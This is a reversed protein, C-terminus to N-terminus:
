KAGRAVHENGITYPIAAALLYFPLREFTRAGAAHRRAPCWSSVWRVSSAFDHVPREFEHHNGDRVHIAGLSEIGLLEAKMHVDVVAGAVVKTDHLQRRRARGAGDRDHPVRLRRARELTQM